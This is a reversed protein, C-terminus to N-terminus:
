SRVVQKEKIRNSCIRGTLVSFPACSHPQKHDFDTVLVIDDIRNMIKYAGVTISHFDVMM